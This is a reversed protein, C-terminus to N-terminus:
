KLKLLEKQGNKCLYVAEPYQQFEFIENPVIYELRKGELFYKNLDEISIGMSENDAIEQVM